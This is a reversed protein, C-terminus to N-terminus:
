WYITKSDYRSSQHESELDSVQRKVDVSTSNQIADSVYIQCTNANGTPSVHLIQRAEVPLQLVTNQSFAGQQHPPLGNSSTIILVNTPGLVTTEGKEPSSFQMHWKAQDNQSAQNQLHEHGIEQLNDEVMNQQLQNVSNLSDAILSDEKGASLKYISEPISVLPQRGTSQVSQEIIVPVASNAASSLVDQNSTGSLEKLTVAVGSLSTSVTQIGVDPSTSVTGLIKAETSTPISGVLQGVSSAESVLDSTEFLEQESAAAGVNGAVCMQNSLAVNYASLDEAPPGLKSVQQPTNTSEDDLSASPLQCSIGTSDNSSPELILSDHRESESRKVKPKQESEHENSRRKNSVDRLKVVTKGFKICPRSWSLQQQVM